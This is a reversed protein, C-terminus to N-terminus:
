SFLEEQREKSPEQFRAECDPCWYPEEPEERRNFAFEVSAKRAEPTPANPDVWVPVLERIDHFGCEPCILRVSM